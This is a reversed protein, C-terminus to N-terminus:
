EFSTVPEAPPEPHEELGLLRIEAMDIRLGVTMLTEVATQLDSVPKERLGWHDTQRDRYSVRNHVTDIRIQRGDPYDIVLDHRQRPHRSPEWPDVVCEIFSEYEAETFPSATPLESM